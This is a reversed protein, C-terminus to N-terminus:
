PILYVPMEDKDKEEGKKKFDNLSALFFPQKKNEIKLNYKAAYYETLNENSDKNVIFTDPNVDFIVDEIRWYKHNGYNAMVVKSIFNSKIKNRKEDKDLDKYTKYLKNIAEVARENQVVRTSSDIKLYIGNELLNISTSYGKYLVVGVNNIAVSNAHKFYKKTKGVEHYDLKMLFTKIMNNLFGFPVAAKKKDNSHIDELNVTRVAKFNIEYNTGNESVVTNYDDKSTPKYCAYVTNANIVYEGMEDRIEALAKDLLKLRLARNDYQIM